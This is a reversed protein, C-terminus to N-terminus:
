SPRESSQANSPSGTAQEVLSLFDEAFRRLRQCADPAAAHEAAERASKSMRRFSAISDALSDACRPDFFSARGGAQERHVAINSLILPAGTARAEEVTTSWGEFLSPNLVADSARMLASLEEYPILGLLRFSDALGLERIRAKIRPFHEPDRPDSQLGSAAVFPRLGRARLLALAELVLLHNKHSWFQNPLFFFHEPLGHSDAIARAEAASMPPGPPVAFRVACTRGRTAPYFRHCDEVANESSLMILRRGLVQARFGIERKWWSGHSFLHPLHRHQFDPIWAIAPLSVRWGLFQASEFILEVGHARFLKLVPSDRGLLTARALSRTKRAQDLLPSRVIEVGPLAAFPAADAADVDCGFFLVPTVRGTGFRSLQRVLNLLYNYGGTWSRGGILTFAVRTM